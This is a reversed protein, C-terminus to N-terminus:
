FHAMWFRHNLVAVREQRADDDPLFVRGLAPTIGLVSFYSGTAFLFFRVEGEPRVSGLTLRFGAVDEFLDKRAQLEHITPIGVAPFVLSGMIKTSGGIVVLEQPRPVPLPRLLWSDVISLVVTVAAIGLALSSATAFTFAPRRILGRLGYRIDQGLEE